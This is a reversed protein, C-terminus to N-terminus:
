FDAPLLRARIYGFGTMVVVVAALSLLTLKTGIRM